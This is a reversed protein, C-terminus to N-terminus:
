IYVGFFVKAVSQASFPHSIAVFHGYKTFRDVVVLIVNKGNSKPLGEVFDMSIHTWAWDPIPLPQLLGKVLGTDPKNRKCVECQKIFQLVDEKLKPWYFM